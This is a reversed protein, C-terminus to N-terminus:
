EFLMLYILIFFKGIVAKILMFYFNWELAYFLQQDNSQISEFQRNKEPFSFNPIFSEKRSIFISSPVNSIENKNLTLTILKERKERM